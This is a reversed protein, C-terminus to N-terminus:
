FWVGLGGDWVVGGFWFGFRAVLLLGMGVLCLLEYYRAFIYVLIM